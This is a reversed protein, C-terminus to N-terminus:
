LRIERRVAKMGHKLAKMGRKVSKVSPFVDKVAEDLSIKITVM